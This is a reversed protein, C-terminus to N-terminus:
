FTNKLEFLQTKSFRTTKVQESHIVRFSDKVGLLIFGIHFCEKKYEQIIETEYTVFFYAM